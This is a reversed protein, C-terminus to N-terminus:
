KTLFKIVMHYSSPEVRFNHIAPREIIASYALLHDVVLLKTMETVRALRYDMSLLLIVERVPMISSCSFGLLLTSVIGVVLNDIGMKDLAQKYLVNMSSKNDVLIRLM